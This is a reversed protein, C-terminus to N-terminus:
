TGRYTSYGYPSLLLPIHHHKEPHALNFHVVISPYFPTPIGQSLFYTNTDFTLRYNGHQAKSGAPLWSEIRGDAGTESQALVEWQNSKSLIELTVPVRAAAIGLNLDLIHTTIPSRAQTM